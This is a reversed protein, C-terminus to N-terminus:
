QYLKNTELIGVFSVKPNLVYKGHNHWQLIRFRGDHIEDYYKLTM